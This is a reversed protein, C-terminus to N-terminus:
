KNLDQWKKRELKRYCKINDSVKMVPPMRRARSRSRRKVASSKTVSLTSGEDFESERISMGRARKMPTTETIIYIDLDSVALSGREIGVSLM